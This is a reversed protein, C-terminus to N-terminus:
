YTIFEAVTKFPLSPPIVMVNTLRMMGAVPASEKLFDFPLRKYLTTGIANNPATFMVTYGDPPSKLVSNAAIMGGQGTRNEVVFQTGLYNGMWEGFIRATIDNPGGAAFGVIWHIPRSPYKDAARVIGLTLSAIATLVAVLGLVRVSRM